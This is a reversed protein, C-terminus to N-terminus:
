KTELAFRTRHKWVAPPGLTRRADQEIAVSRVTRPLVIFAYPRMAESKKEEAIEEATPAGGGLPGGETQPFSTHFGIVVEGGGRIRSKVECWHGNEGMFLAVIYHTDFDIAFRQHTETYKADNGRHENWLQKWAGADLVQVFREKKIGSHTGDFVATPKFPKEFQPAVMVACALFAALM